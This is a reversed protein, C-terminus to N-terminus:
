NNEAEELFKEHQLVQIAWFSVVLLFFMVGLGVQMATLRANLNTRDDPIIM